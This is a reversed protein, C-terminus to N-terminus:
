RESQSIEIVKEGKGLFCSADIAGQNRAFNLIKSGKGREVIITLLSFSRDKLTRKEDM